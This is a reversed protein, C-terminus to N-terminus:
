EQPGFVTKAGGGINQGLKRRHCETSSTRVPSSQVVRYTTMNHGMISDNGVYCPPKDMVARPRNYWCGNANVGTLM